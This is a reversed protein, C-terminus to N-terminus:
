WNEHETREIRSVERRYVEVVMEDHLCLMTELSFCPELIMVIAMAPMKYMSTNKEAAM